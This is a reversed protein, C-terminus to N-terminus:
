KNLLHTPTDPTFLSPEQTRTSPPTLSATNNGQTVLLPLCLVSLPRVPSQQAGTLCFFGPECLCIGCLPQRGLSRRLQARPTQRHNQLFRM